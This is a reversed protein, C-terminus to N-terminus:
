AYGAVNTRWKRKDNGIFYNTVSPLLEMGSVRANPNAGIMKLLVFSSEFTGQSNIVARSIQFVAGDSTLFSIGDSGRATFRVRPDTQGENIEFRLPPRTFQIGNSPRSSPISDADFKRTAMFLGVLILVLFFRSSYSLFSNAHAEGFGKFQLTM